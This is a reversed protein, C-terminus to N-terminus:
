VEKRVVALLSSLHDLRGSGRGIILPPSVANKSGTKIVTKGKKRVVTEILEERTDINCVHNKKSWLGACHFCNHCWSCKVCWSCNESFTSKYNSDFKLGEGKEGLSEVLRKKELPSLWFFVTKHMNFIFNM